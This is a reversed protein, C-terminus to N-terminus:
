CHSKINTRQRRGNKGVMRLIRFVTKEIQGVLHRFHNGAPLLEFDLKIRYVRAVQTRGPLNLDNRTENIIEAALVRKNNDVRNQPVVASKIGSHGLLHHKFHANQRPTRIHQRGIQRFEKRQEIARILM